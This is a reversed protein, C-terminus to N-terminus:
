CGGERGQLGYLLVVGVYRFDVGLIGDALLVLVEVEEAQCRSDVGHARFDLCRHRHSLDRAAHRIYDFPHILRHLTHIQFLDPDCRACRCSCFSSAYASRSAYM